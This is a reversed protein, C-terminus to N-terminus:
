STRCAVERVNFRSAIRCWRLAAFQESCFPVQPLVDDYQSSTKQFSRFPFVPIRGGQSVDDMCVWFCLHVQSSASNIGM